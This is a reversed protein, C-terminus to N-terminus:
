QIMVEVVSIDDHISSDKLFLEFGETIRSIRGNGENKIKLLSTLANIDFVEDNASTTEILGDTYAYLQHSKQFHNTFLEVGATSISEIGLPLQSSPISEVIEGADNTILIDPLGANCVTVTGRAELVVAACCFFSSPLLEILRNNLETVIEEVSLGNRATARFISAVPAASIAAAIGHGTLDALLTYKEGSNGAYALALDGSFAQLPRQWIHAHGPTKESPDNIHRLVKLALAEEKNRQTKIQVLKKSIRHFRIERQTLKRYARYILAQCLVSLVLAFVLTAKGPSSFGNTDNSINAIALAAALVSTLLM